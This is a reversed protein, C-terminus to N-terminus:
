RYSRRLSRTKAYVSEVTSSALERKAAIRAICAPRANPKPVGIRLTSALLCVLDGTADRGLVSSCLILYRWAAVPGTGRAGDRRLVAPRLLPLIQRTAGPVSACLIACRWLHCATPGGAGDDERSSRAERVTRKGGARRSCGPPRSGLHYCFFSRWPRLGRVPSVMVMAALRSALKLAPLSSFSFSTWDL